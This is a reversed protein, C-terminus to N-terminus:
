RLRAPKLTVTISLPEIVAAQEDPLQPYMQGLWTGGSVSGEAIGTANLDNNLERDGNRTLGM